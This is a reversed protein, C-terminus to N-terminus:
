SVAPSSSAWTSSGYGTWRTTASVPNGRWYPQDEGVGPAPTRFGSRQGDVIFYGTPVSIRVGPVVEAETIAGVAQFHESGLVWSPPLVAAIPVGHAQGAAVLDKMTQDAFLAQVLVSIEPWAAFRAGIVDYKPDQFDEPEGLWRRLGRWQRPAMVCLRVYGDKCPCIPYADQNRPRGRWRGTRRIGAAAQGHAGFAPDLATVVADFRSFDIYDGTGCRLRSYYVVLAAWAAQVAATASAIGDPLLVPTGTTPGSRSLSGCMAYLVPDTARWSSRPGTEGFDTISLVVLHQYRAALEAGSTGFAAAHGNLGSDVVIDAEAALDLFRQCDNEELPDLVTSRKNANRVAFPISAGVLTPLEDRGQSGGPFEVKLVDAGLDAFLRTVADASGSSLDLVRVADLLGEPM